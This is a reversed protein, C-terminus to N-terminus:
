FASKAQYFLILTYMGLLDGDKHRVNEFGVEQQLKGLFEAFRAGSINPPLITSSAM